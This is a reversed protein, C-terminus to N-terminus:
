ERRRQHDDVSGACEPRGLHDALKGPYRHGDCHHHCNAYGAGPERHNVSVNLTAPTTGSAPSVELWTANDSVTFPLAAGTSGVSVTQPAPTLEGLRFSFSLSNSSVTITAAAQVTLTVNVTQATGGTPTFTVTGSYTGPNLTGPNVLM